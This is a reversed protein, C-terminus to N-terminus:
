RCVRNRGKRKARYLLQDAAQLVDGARDAGRGALGVSVTVKVERGGGQGRHDPGQKGGSRAPTRVRFGSAAIRQRVRDMIEAAEELSKGPFLVTFEEGGYRFARGGGEMRSLHGAVKRLVQDGVQHGYRDNFKKFHDVDLMAVVVGPGMRQLQEELARRGPLGTLEDVFALRYSEQVLSVGLLLCALGWFVVTTAGDGGTHLPPLTATLAGLLGGDLPSGRYLWLGLLVVGGLAYAGLSAPALETGPLSGPATWPGQLLEGLAGQPHAVAWALLGAQGGLLGLRILGRATWLGREPLLGLLALNIPVLLAAGSSLVTAAPGYVSLSSFAGYAALLVGLALAVRGRHFWLAMALAVGGLVFPALRLFDRQVGSVGPYLDRLWLALGCLAGFLLVALARRLAPAM